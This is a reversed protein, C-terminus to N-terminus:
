GSCEWTVGDLEALFTDEAAQNIASDAGWESLCNAYVMVFRSIYVESPCWAQGCPEVDIDMIVDFSTSVFNLDCAEESGCIGSEAEGECSSGGLAYIRVHRDQWDPESWIYTCSLCSYGECSACNGTQPRTHSWETLTVSPPLTIIADEPACPPDPEGVGGTGPDHGGVAPESGGSAPESGGAAPEVGGAGPAGGAPALGGSGSGGTTAGGLGVAGGTSEESGGSGEPHGGVGLAGAAGQGGTASLGADHGSAGSVPEDLSERGAAGGEALDASRFGESCGCTVALLGIWITNTTM